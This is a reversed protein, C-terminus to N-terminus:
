DYLTSRSASKCFNITHSITVDIDMKRKHTIKWNLAYFISVFPIALFMEICCNFRLTKKLGATLNQKFNLM